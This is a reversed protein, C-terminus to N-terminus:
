TQDREQSSRVQSVEKKRERSKVAPASVTHTLHPLM